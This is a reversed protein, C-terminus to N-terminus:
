IKKYIITLNYKQDGYLNQSQVNKSLYTSVETLWFIVLFSPSAFVITLNEFFDSEKNFLRNVVAASSEFNCANCLNGIM